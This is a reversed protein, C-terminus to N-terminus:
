GTLRVFTTRVSSDKQLNGAIVCLVEFDWALLVCKTDHLCRLGTSIKLHQARAIATSQTNVQARIYVGSQLRQMSSQALRNLLQNGFNYPAIEICIPITPNPLIPPLM